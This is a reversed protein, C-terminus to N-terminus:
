RHQIVAHPSIHGSLTKNKAIRVLRIKGEFGGMGM